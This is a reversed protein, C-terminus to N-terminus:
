PSCGMVRRRREMANAAIAPAPATEACPEAAGEAGLGVGAGGGGATAMWAGTGGAFATARQLSPLKMTAGAGAVSQEKSARPPTFTVMGGRRVGGTRATDGAASDRASSLAAVDVVAGGIPAVIRQL